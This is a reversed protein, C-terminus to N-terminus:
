KWAGRKFSMHDFRQKGHRLIVGSAVVAHPRDVIDCNCAVSRGIFVSVTLRDNIKM